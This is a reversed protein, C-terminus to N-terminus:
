NNLPFENVIVPKSTKDTYDLSIIALSVVRAQVPKLNYESIENRLQRVYSKSISNKVRAIKIYNILKSHDKRSKVDPLELSKIDSHLNKTVEQLKGVHKLNWLLTSPNHERKSGFNINNLTIPLQALGYTSSEIVSCVAQYSEISLSSSLFQLNIYLQDIPVFYFNRKHKVFKRNIDRLITKSQEDILGGIFLKTKLFSYNPM